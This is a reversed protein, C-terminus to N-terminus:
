QRSQRIEAYLERRGKDKEGTDASANFDPDPTTQKFLHPRQQKVDAVQQAFPRDDDADLYLGIDSPNVAQAERAAEMIELTRLREGTKSAAEAAANAVETANKANTRAGSREDLADDKVGLIEALQDKLQAATAQPRNARQNSLDTIKQELAAIKAAQDAIQTAQGDDTSGNPDTTDTM